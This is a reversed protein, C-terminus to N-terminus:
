NLADHIEKETLPRYEGAGLEADLTLGGISLRKLYLVRCGAYGIMRRVQHKKGETVTVRGLTAVYDGKRLLKKDEESLLHAYESLHPNSLIEVKSPSTVFDGSRYISVGSEIERVIEETLTGLALFLYTKAVKNEPTLLRHCFDGDDTILLLGETDKDLRGVPFLIDRDAEPFLDMVAGVRADRRASLLGRPKNLMYYRKM